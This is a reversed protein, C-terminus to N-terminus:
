DHILMLVYILIDHILQKERIKKENTKLETNTLQTELNHITLHRMHKNSKSWPRDTHLWSTNKITNESKRLTKNDNTIIDLLGHGSIVHGMIKICVKNTKLNYYINSNTMYTDNPIKIIPMAINPTIQYSKYNQLTNIDSDDLRDQSIIDTTHCFQCISLKIINELCEFSKKLEVFIAFQKKYEDGIDNYKKMADIVNKNENVDINSIEAQLNYITKLLNM